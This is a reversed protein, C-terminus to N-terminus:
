VLTGAMLIIEYDEGTWVLRKTNIKSQLNVPTPIQWFKKNSVAMYTPPVIADDNDEDDGGCCCPLLDLFNEYPNLCLFIFLCCLVAQTHTLDFALEEDKKRELFLFGADSNAM